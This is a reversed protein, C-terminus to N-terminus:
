KRTRLQSILSEISSLLALDDDLTLLAVKQTTHLPLYEAIRYVVDANSLASRPNAEDIAHHHELLKHLLARLELFQGDSALAKPPPLWEITATMLNNSAVRYAEFCFRRQGYTLINLLGNSGQSWDIIEVYTGVLFPVAIGGAERGEKIPVVGFGQKARLCDRILDIYRAEFIQLPLRGGPFLVTQLPFLAITTAADPGKM